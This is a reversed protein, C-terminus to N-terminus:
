KSRKEELLRKVLDDIENQSLKREGVPYSFADDQSPPAPVAAPVPSVSVRDGHNIQRFIEVPSTARGIIEVPGEPVPKDLVSAPTRGFFICFCKGTHFFAIDGVNVDLTTQGEPSEIGAEFFIEDGWRSVPAELPLKKIISQATLSSNLEATILLDRVKLNIKAMTDM